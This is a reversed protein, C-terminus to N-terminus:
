NKLFNGVYILVMTTEAAQAEVKAVIDGLNGKVVKEKDPYGIFYCVAIPTGEDYYRSLDKVLNRIRGGGMFIVMTVDHKALDRTNPRLNFEEGLPTHIIITPSVGRGTAALEKKLLAVGASWSSMGPIVIYESDDLHRWLIALDGYLCPDGLVLYAVDRGEKTEQKLEDTIKRAWENRQSALERLEPGKLRTYHVGRLEYIAEIQPNRVDKGALYESFLDGIFPPAYIVNAKQIVKIAQLTCLDPGAPGIGVFYVKACVECNAGFLVAFSGILGLIMISLSKRVMHKAEKM